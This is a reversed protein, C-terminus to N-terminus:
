QCDSYFSGNKADTREVCQAPDAITGAVNFDYGRDKLVVLYRGAPLEMDADRPQVLLMEPHRAIPRVKFDYVVNRIIWSPPAPSFIPKGKADFSIVRKVRAVARVEVRDLADASFDRRYVVFKAAGDAITVQSAQNIPTSMEIRKDPVQESSQLELLTSGNVVYIGYDKPLPVPSAEQSSDASAVGKVATEPMRVAADKKAPEIQLAAQIKKDDRWPSLRQAFLTLGALVVFLSMIIAYWNQREGWFRARRTYAFLADTRRNVSSRLEPLITGVSPLALMPRPSPQAVDHDAEITGHSFVMRKNANRRQSFKEVGAIAAELSDSLREKEMADANITNYVLKARAFEYIALRLQSPDQEAVEIMQSLILAYEVETAPLSTEQYSPEVNRHEPKVAAWRVVVAFIAGGGPAPM